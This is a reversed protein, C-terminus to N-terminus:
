RRPRAARTRSPRTGARKRRTSKASKRPPKTAEVLKWFQKDGIVTVAHGRAALRRIEMLKLGGVTGAIQLKNPRGRVLVDTSHGPKSQVVAGAKKAAAIAESRPRSLFGTFSVRKGALSRIRGLPLAKQRQQLAEILEGAAEYRKGRVGLCRHLVEKLHDSCPLRRVDRSRMPSAIDGRLLMAAILGVQYIDDRQQWRRIRGWAIENPANFVNFADATVGRRSLQHTAIGFDGLKLQEDKCVFVNFPTLDRHLAQGRHLADLTQLIAAIERRVFREPQPGKRALWAGLDGHEAYEMALCYRMRTGDVVAFRDFVPLARSERGVLEAFYAERLWASMRESIKICVRSPYGDPPIPTALYVEGFGGKGILRDLRYSRGTECSYITPLSSQAGSDSEPTYPASPGDTAPKQTQM